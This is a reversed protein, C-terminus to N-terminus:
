WQRGPENGMDNATGRPFLVSYHKLIPNNNGNAFKPFVFEIKVKYKERAADIAWATYGIIKEGNVTVNYEPNGFFKTVMSFSIQGLSRDFSRAEFIYNAKGVGFVVNQKSYTYYTGKAQAVFDETDAKGLKSEVSEISTGYVAFDCNIIKGQSASNKINQLLTNQSNSNQLSKSSNTVFKQPAM